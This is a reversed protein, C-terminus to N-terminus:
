RTRDSDPAPKIEGSELGDIIHRITNRTKKAGHMATTLVAVGLLALGMSLENSHQKLEDYIAEASPNDMVGLAEATRNALKNAVTPDSQGDLMVVGAGIGIIVTAGVGMDLASRYNDNKRTLAELDVPTSSQIRIHVFSRPNELAAKYTADSLDEATIKHETRRTTFVALDSPERPPTM